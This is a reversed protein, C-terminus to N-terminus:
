RDSFLSVRHACIARQVRAAAHGTGAGQATAATGVHRPANARATGRVERGLTGGPMGGLVNSRTDHRRVISGGEGGRAGRCAPFSRSSCQSGHIHSGESHNSATRKWFFLFPITPSNTGIAMPADPAPPRRASSCAKGRSMGGHHLHCHCPTHAQAGARRCWPSQWRQLLLLIETRSSLGSLARYSANQAPASSAAAQAATSSSVPSSEAAHLDLHAPRPEV